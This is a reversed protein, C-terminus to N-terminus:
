SARFSVFNAKDNENSFVFCHGMFVPLSFSRFITFFLSSVKTEDARNRGQEARADEVTPEFREGLSDGVGWRHDRVSVSSAAFSSCLDLLFLRSTPSLAKHWVIRCKLKKWPQNRFSHSLLKPFPHQLLLSVPSPLSADECHEAKGWLTWGKRVTDLKEECHSLNLDTSVQLFTWEVPFPFFQHCIVSFTFKKRFAHMSM